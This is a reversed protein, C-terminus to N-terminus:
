GPLELSPSGPKARSELWREFDTVDTPRRFFYGQGEDCGFNRLADLHEATAVGEALVRLGLEHGLKVIMEPISSRQGAPTLADVFTRDIKLRDVSLQQLYSLSSFGTGFDDIAIATGLAKLRKLAGRVDEIDDMAMSETIELELMSPDIGYQEIVSRVLETFGPSRFQDVSVNVAMRFGDIGRGNWQALQRVATRLVWEGISRILGSSEAVPIFTGPPVYVGAGNKWRLLAEVGVLEGSGLHFQPQYFLELQRAEMSRRLEHALRVRNRTEAEMQRTYYHYQGGARSKARNLGISANKLADVSSGSVESLRVLGLSVSVQLSHSNIQFPEEFLAVIRGPELEGVGGCLGFSDEGVRGLAVGKPLAGHLRAAVCKLLLDGSEHGLADNTESFHDVDLISLVAGHRGADIRKEVQNLFGTRNLLGTLQDIYAFAHLRELLLGNEFGVSVTGAFVKILGFELESLPEHTELCLAFASDSKTDMYFVATEQALVNDRDLIAQEITSALRRAGLLAVPQGVCAAYQGVGAIVRIEQDRHAGVERRRCILADVQRRLISGVYALVGGCFQETGRRKFLDAASGAIIGLAERSVGITRIQAYSRIATVLTTSLRTRTLEAKSKYDNIDYDQIVKLEPAPGVEGTRLVIRVAQMGLEQRIHRVLRLGADETEMVVDLLVVSVDRHQALVDQAQRGSYAHLLELGRGEITLDSLAFETARHVEPDDDVILLKWARPAGGSPACPDEDVFHLLPDEDSSQTRGSAAPPSM